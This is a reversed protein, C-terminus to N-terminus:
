TSLGQAKSAAKRERQQDRRCAGRARVLGRRAGHQRRAVPRQLELGGGGARVREGRQAGSGIAVNNNGANLNRLSEFGIAINNGGSTVDFLVGQNAGGSGIGVNRVGSAAVGRGAQPGIYICNSIANTYGDAARGGIVVSRLTALNGAGNAAGHGIIVNDQCIASTLNLGAEFGIAVNREGLILANLANVGIAISGAMDADTVGGAFAGNGLAILNDVTADAGAALGLALMGDGTNNAGAGAGGLIVDDALNGAGADSGIVRDTATLAFYGGGPVFFPM